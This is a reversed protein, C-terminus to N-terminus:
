QGIMNFDDHRADPTDSRWRVSGIPRELRRRVRPEDSAHHFADAKEQISRDATTWRDRLRLYDGWTACQYREIWLWPDAIDRSLSWGFAGNRQRMKQVDGMAAYFARAEDPDVRYSIEVAVPGSRTTLDLAVEPEYGIPASEVEVVRASEIFTVYRLFTSSASAAGSVLLATTIGWVEAVEGWLWAGGAIGGTLASTSFSLARGTVWRPASLQVTVMLLATTIINTVGSVFLAALTLPLWSSLGAVALAAGTALANLGVITETSMRAQVRSVSLAGTVAGAGIAALLLGFVAADGGLKDKAIVPALAVASASTLGFVVLRFLVTRINGANWSYRAGSIIARGLREPPLRSPQPKRKWLYFAGAMPLFFMANLAFVAQAGVAAVLFGGIAPGLSRAINYSITGLAIAAPLLTAPVQESISAQWSPAYFAVGAGILFCFSLIMWPGAIGAATLLAFVTASLAAFLIGAMATIRRDFMDAVAGAPVAVLMLPLMLATQVLAVMGTDDTLRTMEWAAGVGLMLQGLNAAISSLWINRFAGVRLPAFPGDDPSTDNASSVSM